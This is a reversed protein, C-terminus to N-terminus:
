LSAYLERVLDRAQIKGAGGRIAHDSTMDIWPIMKDLIPRCESYLTRILEPRSGMELIFKRTDFTVDPNSAFKSRPNLGTILGKEKALNMLTLRPDFGSEQIFEMIAAYGGAATRAKSIMAKVPRGNYGNEEETKVGKKDNIPMLLIISSMYLILKDGGTVWVGNPLNPLQRTKPVDNGRMDTSWHHIIFLNINYKEMIGLSNRLFKNRGVTERGAAFGDSIEKQEDEDSTFKMLSDLVLVTPKYLVIENGDMDYKGTKYMFSKKNAEKLAAIEMMQAFVHEYTFVKTSPVIRFKDKMVSRPIGLLGQVREDTTGNEGDDWVVFAGEDFPEVINWSSQIGLTSKGSQSQGLFMTATGSPVGLSTQTLTNGDPLVYTYKCGLLQDLVPQGLAYSVRPPKSDFIGSKKQMEELESLISAM